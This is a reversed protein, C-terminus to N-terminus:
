IVDSFSKSEYFRKAIWPKTAFVFFLIFCFILLINKANRVNHEM